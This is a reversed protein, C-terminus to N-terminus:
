STEKKRERNRLRVTLHIDIMALVIVILLVCMAGLWIAFFTRPQERYDVARIGLYLLIALLIMAAGNIRRLRIRRLNAPGAEVEGLRHAARSYFLYHWGAVGIVLVLLTTPWNSL